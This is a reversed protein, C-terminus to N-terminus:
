KRKVKQFIAKRKKPDKLIHYVAPSISILVILVIIPLLFKDIDAPDMLSGFVSFIFYGSVSIGVTWLFAGIVNYRIFKAYNMKSIGTVIPNFTRIIPMFQALIIAKAGNKEYFKEAELLYRQKFIKSDKKKFLKRGFHKGILYGCTNGAVAAAFFIGALIWINVPIKGLGVLAGATFLLSDGPLFFGIMLGTEAFIIAAVGYGMIELVTSLEIGPIM